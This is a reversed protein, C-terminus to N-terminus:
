NTSTSRSTIFAYMLSANHLKEIVQKIILVVNSDDVGIWVNIEDILKSRLSKRPGGKIYDYPETLKYENASAPM